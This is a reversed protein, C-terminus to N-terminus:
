ARRDEKRRKPHSGTEIAKIRKELNERRRENIYLALGIAAAGTILVAMSVWTITRPDHGNDGTQFAMSVLGLGTFIGLVFVMSGYFLITTMAAYEREGNIEAVRLGSLAVRARHTVKMAYTLAFACCLTWAVEPTTITNTLHVGLLSTM